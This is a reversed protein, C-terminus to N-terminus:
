LVINNAKAQKTDVKGKKWHEDVSPLLGNTNSEGAEAEGM